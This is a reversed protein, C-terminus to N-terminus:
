HIGVARHENIVNGLAIQPQKRRTKGMGNLSKLWITAFEQQHEILTVERFVAGEKEGLRDRVRRPVDQRFIKAEVLFSDVFNYSARREVNEGCLKRLRECLILRLDSSPAHFRRELVRELHFGHSGGPFCRSTFNTNHVRAVERNGLVDGRRENSELWSSQAFQVPM